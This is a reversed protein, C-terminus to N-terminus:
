NSDPDKESLEVSNQLILNAQLVSWQQELYATEEDAGNEPLKTYEEILASLQAAKRLRSTNGRGVVPGITKLSGVTPKYLDRYIEELSRRLLKESIMKPDIRTAEKFSAGAVDYFIYASLVGFASLGAGISSLGYGASNISPAIWQPEVGSNFARADQEIREMSPYLNSVESVSSM